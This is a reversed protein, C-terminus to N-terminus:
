PTVKKAQIAAYKELTMEGAHKAAYKEYLAQRIKLATNTDSHSRSRLLEVYRQALLRDASTVKKGDRELDTIVEALMQQRTALFLGSQSVGKPFPRGPGRRRKPQASPQAM